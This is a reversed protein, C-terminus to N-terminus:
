EKNASRHALVRRKFSEFNPRAIESLEKAQKESKLADKLFLVVKPSPSKYDFLMAGWFLKLSPHRIEDFYRVAYKRNKESDCLGRSIAAFPYIDYKEVDNETLALLVPLYPEAKRIAEETFFEGKTPLTKLVEIFDKKQADLIQQASQCPAFVFLFALFASVM